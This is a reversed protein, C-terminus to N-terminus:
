PVVNMDRQAAVLTMIGQAAEAYGDQLPIVEGASDKFVGQITYGSDSARIIAVLNDAMEFGEVVGAKSVLLPWWRSRMNSLTTDGIIVNYEQWYNPDEDPGKIKRKEM